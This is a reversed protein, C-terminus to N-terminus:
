AQARPQHTHKTYANAECIQTTSQQLERPSALSSGARFSLPSSPKATFADLCPGPGRRGPHRRKALCYLLTADGCCPGRRLPSCIIAYPHVGVHPTIRLVQDPIRGLVDAAHLRGAPGCSPDRAQKHFKLANGHRQGYSKVHPTLGAGAWEKLFVHVTSGSVGDVVSHDECTTSAVDSLM